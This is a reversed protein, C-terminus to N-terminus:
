LCYAIFFTASLISISQRFCCSTLFFSDSQIPFNQAPFRCAKAIATAAQDAVFGLKPRPAVSLPFVQNFYPEVGIVQACFSSHNLTAVAPAIQEPTMLVVIAQGTPQHWFIKEIAGAPQLWELVNEASYEL